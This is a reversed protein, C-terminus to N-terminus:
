IGTPLADPQTDPAAFTYPREKRHHKEVENMLRLTHVTNEADMVKDILTINQLVLYAQLSSSLHKSKPVVKRSNSDSERCWFRLNSNSM